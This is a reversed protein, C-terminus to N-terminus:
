VSPKPALAAEACKFWERYQKETIICYDHDIYYWSKRYCRREKGEFQVYYIVNDGNAQDKGQLYIYRPGDKFQDWEPPYSLEVDNAYMERMEKLSVKKIDDNM